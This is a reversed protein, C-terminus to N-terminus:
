TTLQWLSRSYKNYASIVKSWCVRNTTIIQMTWSEQPAYLTCNYLKILDIKTIAVLWRWVAMSIMKVGIWSALKEFSILQWGKWKSSGLERRRVHQHCTRTVSSVPNTKVSCTPVNFPESSTLMHSSQSESLGVDAPCMLMFTTLPHCAQPWSM